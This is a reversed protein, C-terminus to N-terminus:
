APKHSTELDEADFESFMADYDIKTGPKFQIRGERGDSWYHMQCEDFRPDPSHKTVGYYHNPRELLRFTNHTQWPVTSAGGLFTGTFFAATFYRGGRGNEIVPAFTGIRGASAAIREGSQQYDNAKFLADMVIKEHQEKAHRFVFPDFTVHRLDLGEPPTVGFVMPVRIITDHDPAPAVDTITFSAHGSHAYSTSPM